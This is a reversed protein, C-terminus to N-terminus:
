RGAEGAVLDMAVDIPVRVIGRQEDVWAFKSLLQKDRLVLIQGRGRRSFLEEHVNSREMVPGLEREPWKGDPRLERESARQVGFAVVVLVVSLGVAGLIAFLILRPPLIDAEQRPREEMPSHAM